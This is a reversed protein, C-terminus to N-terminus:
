GRGSGTWVLAPRCIHEVGGYGGPQSRLMAPKVKVKARIKVPTSPQRQATGPRTEPLSKVSRAHCHGPQRAPCGPGSARPRVFRYPWVSATSSRLKVTRGPTTVPKTPGFPDPFVVVMRIITPRSAGSALQNDFLCRFVTRSEQADSWM